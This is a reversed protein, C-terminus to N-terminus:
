AKANCGRGSLDRLGTADQLLVPYYGSSVWTGVSPMRAWKQQRPQASAPKKLVEGCVDAAWPKASVIVDDRESLDEASEVLSDACSGDSTTCCDAVEASGEGQAEAKPAAEPAAEPWQARAPLLWTGVSPALYWPTRPAEQVPSEDVQASCPPGALAGIDGLTQEQEQHGQESAIDTDLNVVLGCQQQQQQPQVLAPQPQQVEEPRELQEPLPPEPLLQPQPQMQEQASAPILAQEETRANAGAANSAAAAAPSTPADLPPVLHEQEESSCPRKGNGTKKKKGSKKKKDAFPKKVDAVAGDVDGLDFRCENLEEQGKIGCAQCTGM